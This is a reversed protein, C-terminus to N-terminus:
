EDKWWKHDPGGLSKDICPKLQSGAWCGEMIAPVSEWKQDHTTCWPIATLRVQATPFGNAPLVDLIRIEPEM